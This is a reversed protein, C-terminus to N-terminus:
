AAVQGAYLCLPRDYELITRGHKLGHANEHGDDNESANEHEQAHSYDQGLLHQYTPAQQQINCM